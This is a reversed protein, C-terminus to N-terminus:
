VGWGGGWGVGSQVTVRGPWPQPGGPWLGKGRLPLLMLPESLLTGVLQGETQLGGVCSLRLPLRALVPEPAPFDYVCTVARM